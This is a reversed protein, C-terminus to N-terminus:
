RILFIQAVSFVDLISLYTNSLYDSLESPKVWIAQEINEEIQPKTTKDKGHYEMQYWYSTKVTLEGVKNVYTHYTKCIIEKLLINSIGCEEEVERVATTEIEEGNEQKGKPLDWHNNRYILLIEGENNTVIGGGANIRTLKKCLQNFTAEEDSTIISLSNINSLEAFIYPLEEIGQNNGPIYHVATPEKKFKDSSTCVAIRRNNFFLSYM